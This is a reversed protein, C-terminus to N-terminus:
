DAAKYSKHGAFDNQRDSACCLCELTRVFAVGCLVLWCWCREGRDCELVVTVHEARM